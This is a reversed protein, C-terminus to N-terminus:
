EYRVTTSAGLQFEIKDSNYLKVVPANQLGSRLKYDAQIYKAEQIHDLKNTDIAEKIVWETSSSVEFNADLNASGILVAGYQFLSDIVEEQADLFYYQIDMSLPLDNVVSLQFLVNEIIMSHEEFEPLPAIKLDFSEQESYQFAKISLKMPIELELNAKIKSSGLAFYPDAQNSNSQTQAVFSFHLSDPNIELLELLNSNSQDFILSTSISEGLQNMTPYGLSVNQLQASSLLKSKGDENSALIIVQDLDIPFGFSNDLDIKLKVDELTLDSGSNKFFSIAIASSIPNFNFAELNSAIVQQCKQENFSLHVEGLLKDEMNVNWARYQVNFNGSRLDIEYGALSFEKDITTPIFGPYPIDIEQKWIQGDKQIEEITFEVKIDEQHGTLFHVKLMGEKISLSSAPLLNPILSHPVIVQNNVMPFDFSDLKIIEDGQESFSEMNYALSLFNNEDINVSSEVNPKKLIDEASLIQKFLPISLEQDFGNFDYALDYSENPNGLCSVFLLSFILYKILNM